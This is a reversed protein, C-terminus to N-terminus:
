LNELLEDINIDALDPISTESKKAPAKILPQQVPEKKRPGQGSRAQCGDCKPKNRLLKTYTMTFPKSCKWCLSIKGLIFEVHLYHSCGTLACKWIITGKQGWEVKEYMHIHQPIKSPKKAM